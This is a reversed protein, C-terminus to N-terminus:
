ESAITAGFRTSDRGNASFNFLRACAVVLHDAGEASDAYRAGLDLRKSVRNWAGKAEVGVLRDGM